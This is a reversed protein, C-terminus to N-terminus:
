WGVSTSPFSAQADFLEIVAAKAKADDGSLFIV